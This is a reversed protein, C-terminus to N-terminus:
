GDECGFKIGKWIDCIEAYCLVEVYNQGEDWDYEWVHEGYENDYLYLENSIEWPDATSYRKAIRVLYDNYINTNTNVKEYFEILTM